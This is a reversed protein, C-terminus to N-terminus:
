ECPRKQSPDNQPGGPGAKEKKEPISEDVVEERKIVKKELLELQQIDFAQSDVLSGNHLEQPAIVVRSCGYMWDTRGVAIGTFGSIRDRVKDGLEIKDGMNEGEM